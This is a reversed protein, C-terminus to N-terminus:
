REDRVRVALAPENTTVLFARGPRLWYRLSEETDVTWVLLPRRTRGAFAAVGFRALWHNAVVLNAGAVRYRLGPLLEFTRVWIRRPLSLGRLSRGLSLGVLLGLGEADSWDRVARVQQDELTTVLVADAGLLEVARRSAEVAADPDTVKLDLHLRARGAIAALADEYTTPSALTGDHDVVFSGDGRRHVDIEVHDVGLAVAAEVDALTECRHASVLVRGRRV